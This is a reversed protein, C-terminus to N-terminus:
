DRALRFGLTSDRSAPLFAWSRYACRLLSISGGWTGGRVVRLGNISPGTPNSYIGHDVCYQYYNADYSENCWEWVNGAMDYLGYGNAMDVGSPIQNGDYYGVPTTQTQSITEFPDGSNAYNAKSGDITNGWPYDHYPNHEGGRAAKEWEAETPLRYGGAGFTCNWTYLDYCPIRGEQASRWNAYAAAGYWSVLVMPHNKKGSTVGFTSGDWTIRSRYNSTTTDCYSETDNKKYVVGGSVRIQEQKYASNLFDCYEKNTVEFTDMHFTDIYVAHVPRENSFGTGLHDGMEYEGEAIRQMPPPMYIEPQLEPLKPSPGMKELPGNTVPAQALCVVAFVIFLATKLLSRM